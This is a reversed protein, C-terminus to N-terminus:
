KIDENIGDTERKVQLLTGDTLSKEDIIPKKDSESYIINVTSNYIQFM